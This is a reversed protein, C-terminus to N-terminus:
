TTQRAASPRVGAGGPHGGGQADRDDRGVRPRRPVVDGSWTAASAAASAARPCRTVIRAGRMRGPACRARAAARSRAASDPSGVASRASGPRPARPPRRGRGASPVRVAGPRARRGRGRGRPRGRGCARRRPGGARAAPAWGRARRAAGCRPAERGGGEVAGLREDPHREQPRQHVARQGPHVQPDGGGVGAPPREGLDEGAVVLHTGGPTSSSPRAAGAGLRLAGRPQHQHRAPAVAGAHAEGEADQAVQLEVEAGDAGHVTSPGGSAGQRVRAVMGFARRSTTVTTGSAPGSARASTSRVPPRITSSAVGSSAAPGTARSAM